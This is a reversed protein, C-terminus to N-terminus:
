IISDPTQKANVHVKIMKTFLQTQSHKPIQQGVNKKCFNWTFNLQNIKM